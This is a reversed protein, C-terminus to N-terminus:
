SCNTAFLSSEAILISLVKETYPISQPADLKPNIGRVNEM